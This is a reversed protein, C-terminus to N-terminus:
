IELFSKLMKLYKYFDSFYNPYGYKLDDISSAKVLLVDWGDPLERESHNYESTAYHAYKNDFVKLNLRNNEYDFEILFYVADEIDAIKIDDKFRVSDHFADLKNFFNLENDLKHFDNIIDESKNPLGNILPSNEKIAILQSLLSLCEIDKPNGIGNKIAQHSILDYVEVIVAWAHQLETRIQTEVRLNKYGDELSDYRSLLHISRYGDAKPEKVYDTISHFSDHGKLIDLLKYEDKVNNLIVRCGAIDNMERLNYTDGSYRKLKGIISDKRKLRSVVDVHKISKLSEGILAEMSNLPVSHASRWIDLVDLPDSISPDIISEDLLM